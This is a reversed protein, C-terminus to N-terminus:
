DIVFRVKDLSLVIKNLLFISMEAPNLHCKLTQIM